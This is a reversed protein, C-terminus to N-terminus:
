SRGRFMDEVRGQDDIWIYNVLDGGCYILVKGTVPRVKRSYGSIYYDEGAQRASYERYPTGLVGLVREETDGIKIRDWNAVYPANLKRMSDEVADVSLIVVIALLGVLLLM